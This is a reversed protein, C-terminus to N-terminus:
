RSVTLTASSRARGSSNSATVRYEGAQGLGVRRLVLTRGKEGAIIKGDLRWRYAPAPYGKAKVRFTATGGVAVSQDQLELTIRPPSPCQAEFFYIPPNVGEGITVYGSGNPLLAIGEGNPEVPPGIVPIARGARALATGVSEGGSREWAQAYEERRLVIQKGDASIDGGSALWFPIATVFSWRVLSGGPIANLNTRYVRATGDQKTVVFLDSSMPDLMLSEADYSGDPYSLTFTEVGSFGVSAPNGTWATDVFPEPIRLVQVRNRGHKDGIDGVYLYSTGRVPGPGVAIDETDLVPINLYFTALHTGNTAVAHIAGDSGDSHTWLVGPNRRSAAIGSAEKLGNITVTGLAVGPGFTDCAAKAFVCGVLLLVAFAALIALSPHLTSIRGPDASDVRPSHLSSSTNIVCITKM